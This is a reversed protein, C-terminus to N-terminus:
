RGYEGGQSSVLKYPCFDKFNCFKCEWTYRPINSSNVLEAIDQPDLKTKISFSRIGDPSIYLLVADHSDCITLYIQMRLTHHERQISLESYKVDLVTRDSNNIYDPSGAVVFEQFEKVCPEKPRIFGLSGLYNELGNEVIEGIIVSPKFSTELDVKPLINLYAKKMPCQVLEHAFYVPKNYKESLMKRKLERIDRYKFIMSDGITAVLKASLLNSSLKIVV